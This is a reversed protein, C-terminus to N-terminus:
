WAEALCLQWKLTRSKTQVLEVIVFLSSNYIFKDWLIFIQAFRLVNNENFFVFVIM